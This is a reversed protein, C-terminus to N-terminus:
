DRTLGVERGCKKKVSRSQLRIQTKVRRLYRLLYLFVRPNNLLEVWNRNRRYLVPLYMGAPLLKIIPPSCFGARQNASFMIRTKNNISLLIGERQTILTMFYTIQTDHQLCNQTAKRTQDSSQIDQKLCRLCPWLYSTLGLDFTLRCQGVGSNPPPILPDTNQLEIM